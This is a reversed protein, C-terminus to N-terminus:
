YCQFHLRCRDFRRDALDEANILYYLRGVDGWMMGVAEDSDVQLLLRTGPRGVSPDDQIADPHGLMRHMPLDTGPELAEDYERRQEHSLGLHDLLESQASPASLEVTATLPAPAFREDAELEAPAKARVLPTGAQIYLVHGANEDGLAIPACFFSLLGSAPLLDDDLRPLEDLRIQAVFALPRGHSHPWATDPPLDPHGGLKTAGLALRAERDRKRKPLRGGWQVIQRDRTLAVRPALARIEGPCTTQVPTSRDTLTGDGLAGEYNWGWAFVEGDDTLAFSSGWGAAIAVVRAGDLGIVATPRTPDAGADIGLRGLTNDGWALVRGDVTLVLAHDRGAAIARAQAPLDVRQPSLWVLDPGRCGLAWGWELVGGDATLALHHTNGVAIAVSGALGPVPQPACPSGHIGRLDVANLGWGVVSRDALIAFSTQWGAFVGRVGGSLGDVGVPTLRSVRTGDGLQGAGNDGWAFVVGGGTLAVSHGMAAAVAQADSLGHVAVPRRRGSKTGDGLQGSDNAGWALVSGRELVALGHVGSGAIARAAGGVGSLEVASVCFAPPEVIAEGRQLVVSSAALAVLEDAVRELGAAVLRGRLEDGSWM